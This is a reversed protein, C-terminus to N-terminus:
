RKFTKLYDIKEKDVNKIGKSSIEILIDDLNFTGRKVIRKINEPINPSKYGTALHKRLGLNLTLYKDIEEKLKNTVTNQSNLKDILFNIREQDVKITEKQTDILKKYSKNIKFLKYLIFSLITSTLFLIINM